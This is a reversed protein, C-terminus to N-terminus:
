GLRWPARKPRDIWRNAEADGVFEVKAPDWKLPRKLWYAINGIHCVTATRHGVEAPAYTDRRSKVCNLFERHERAKVVPLQWGEPGIM